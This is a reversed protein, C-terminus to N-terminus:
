LFVNLLLVWFILSIEEKSAYYISRTSSKQRILMNKHIKLSDALRAVNRNKMLKKKTQVKHTMRVRDKMVPTMGFMIAISSTMKVRVTMISTFDALSSCLCFSYQCIHSQWDRTPSYVLM